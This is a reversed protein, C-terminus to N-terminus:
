VGRSLRQNRGDCSIRRYTRNELVPEMSAQTRM